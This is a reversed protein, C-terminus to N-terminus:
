QPPKANLSRRLYDLQRPKGDADTYKWFTWGNTAPNGGVVTGRAVSAATSCSDFRQGNFEVSGDPSVTATLNVGKYKKYIKLPAAIAGVDILQTLSAGSSTKKLAATPKLKPKRPRPEVPKTDKKSELTLPCSIQVEIRRLSAKIDSPGLLKLHRILLRVVSDSPEGDSPFLERLAAQVQRDVFHMEWLHNLERERMVDKSLLGLTAGPATSPDSVRIVRFLKQEVPVTAHSNYIRYEDGDTLM